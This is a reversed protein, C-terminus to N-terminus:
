QRPSNLDLSSAVKRSRNQRREGRGERQGKRNIMIKKRGRMKDLRKWGKKGKGRKIRKVEKENEDMKREKMYGKRINEKSRWCKETRRGRKQKKGLGKKGGGQENGADEKGTAVRGLRM